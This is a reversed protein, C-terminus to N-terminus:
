AAYAAKQENRRLCYVKGCYGSRKKRKLRYEGTPNHCYRYASAYFCVLLMQSAVRETESESLWRGELPPKAIM